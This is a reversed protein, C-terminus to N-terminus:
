LPNDGFHCKAAEEGVVVAAFWAVELELEVLDAIGSGEEAPLADLRAVCKCVSVEHMCGAVAVVLDSHACVNASSPGFILANADSVNEKVLHKM